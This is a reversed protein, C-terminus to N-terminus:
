AEAEALLQLRRETAASTLTLLDFRALRVPLPRMRRKPGRRPPQAM